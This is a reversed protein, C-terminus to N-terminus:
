GVGGGEATMQARMSRLGGLFDALDDIVVDLEGPALLVGNGGSNFSVCPEGTYSEDASLVARLLEDHRGEMGKPVPVTISPGAHEIYTEGDDYRHTVCDGPRCRPFHGPEAPPAEDLKRAANILPELSKHRYVRDVIIEVADVVPILNDNGLSHVAEAWIGYIMGRIVVARAQDITGAPLGALALAGLVTDALDGLDCQEKIAPTATSAEPQM